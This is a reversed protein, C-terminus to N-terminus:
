EGEQRRRFVCAKNENEKILEYDPDSLYAEYSERGERYRLDLAVYDAEKDTYGIDYLLERRSLKSTFFTSSVVSADSPIVELVDDIEKRMQPRDRYDPAYELLKWHYMSVCLLLGCCIGGALLRVRVMSRLEDRAGLRAYCRIGLYILLVTSGFYYQFGLIHQYYYNSMLNILVYPIWLILEEWGGMALPLFGMPLLILFSSFIKEDTFCQSIVYIPNQFIAKLMVGLSGSSDYIFNDYRGTMAGDGKANLLSVAIVFYALCLLLLWLREKGADVPDIQKRNQERWSKVGDKVLFFLIVVAAYVAADEKISLVLLTTIAMAIPKKKEFAWIMWLVLPSLFNNEHLHDLCGGILAPCVMYIVAFGLGSARSLRYHRCLLYLPILGTAVVLCQAVELCAPEPFLAYLPLLLYFVPSIHVAFHSLLGDRECTVMPLGTKKMYYFMQSFIGFDYTPTGYNRYVMVNVGGLWITYLVGLLILITLAMRRGVRLKFKEIPSFILIGGMFICCGFTYFIDDKQPITRLCYAMSVALMLLVIIRRDSITCFFLWMELCLVIMIPWSVSLYFEKSTFLYQNALNLAFAETLWSLVFCYVYFGREKNM